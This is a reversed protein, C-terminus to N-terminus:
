PLVVLSHDFGAPDGWQVRSEILEPSSSPPMALALPPVEDAGERSHQAVLVPPWVGFPEMSM